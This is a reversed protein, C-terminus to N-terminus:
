RMWHKYLEYFFQNYIQNSYELDKLSEVDEYLNTVKRFAPHKSIDDMRPAM